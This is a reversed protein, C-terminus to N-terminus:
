PLLVVTHDNGRGVRELDFGEIVQAQQELPDLERLPLIRDEIWTALPIEETPLSPLQDLILAATEAGDGVVAYSEHLLWESLGTAALAWRGISMGPVLRKLRRGTLFFVAWAADAPPATSFYRVMAEVKANTSNTQDIAAFLGAFRIM